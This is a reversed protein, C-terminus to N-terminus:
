RASRLWAALAAIERERPHGPAHVLYFGFGSLKLDFAKLLAGSKLEDSVLLDSLMGIGQGALVADIAHLEERFNLHEMEGRDPVDRWRRRAVDLWRQWTAAHPVFPPWHFDILNNVRLPALRKILG